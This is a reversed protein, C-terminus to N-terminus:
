PRLAALMAQPDYGHVVRGRIVLVPVGRGNLAEYDRRAAPSREIDHETFPVDRARLFKRAKECYGCWSTAYLLVDGAAVGSIPEPPHLATAIREWNQILVLVALVLLLKKM